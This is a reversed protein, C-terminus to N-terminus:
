RLSLLVLYDSQKPANADPRLYPILTPGRKDSERLKLRGQPTTFFTDTQTEVGQTEAGLSVAAARAADLDTCVAKLEINSAM